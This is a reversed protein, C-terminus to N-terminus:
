NHYPVAQLHDTPHKLKGAHSLSLVELWLPFFLNTLSNVRTFYFPVLLTGKIIPLTVSPYTPLLSAHEIAMRLSHPQQRVGGGYDAM